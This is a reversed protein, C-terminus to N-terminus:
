LSKISARLPGLWLTWVAFLFCVFWSVLHSQLDLCLVFGSEHDLKFGKWMCYAITVGPWRDTVASFCACIYRIPFKMCFPLMSRPACATYQTFHLIQMIEWLYGEVATKPSLAFVNYGIDVGPDATLCCKCKLNAWSYKKCRYHVVTQTRQFKLLWAAHRLFNDNTRGDISTKTLMMVFLGTSAHM